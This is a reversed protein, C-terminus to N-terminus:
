GKAPETNTVVRTAAGRRSRRPLQAMPEADPKAPPDFIKTANREYAASWGLPKGGPGKPRKADYAAKREKAENDLPDMHRSPEGHWDVTAGAQHLQPDVGRAKDQLYHDKLLKYKPM